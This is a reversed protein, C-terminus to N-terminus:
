PSARLARHPFSLSPFKSAAADHWCPAGGRGIAGSAVLLGLFRGFTKPSLEQWHPVSPIRDRHWTPLERMRAHESNIVSVMTSPSMWLMEDFVALEFGEQNTHLRPLIEARDRDPRLPLLERSAANEALSAEAEVMTWTVDGFDKHAITVKTGVLDRMEAQDDLLRQGPGEGREDDGLDEQVAAADFFDDEESDSDPEADPNLRLRVRRADDRLPSTM